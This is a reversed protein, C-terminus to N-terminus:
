SVESIPASERQIRFTDMNLPEVVHVTLKVGRGDSKPFKHNTHHITWVSCACVMFKWMISDLQTQVNRTAHILFIHKSFHPTKCQLRHSTCVM